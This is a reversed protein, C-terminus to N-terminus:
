LVRRMYLQDSHDFTTYRSSIRSDYWLSQELINADSLGIQYVRPVNQYFLVFYVGNCHLDNSFLIHNILFDTM